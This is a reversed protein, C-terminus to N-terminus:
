EGQTKLRVDGLDKTEGTRLGGSIINSGKRDTLEYRYGPLLTGLTFRGAADTRVKGPLSYGERWGDLRGIIVDLEVGVRPQGDGDVLRGVATAGPELQVTGRGGAERPAVLAGVLGKEVHRFLIPRPRKPNFARVTFAATELPPREWGWAPTLGSCRVGALPQGDPGHVEGTVTWGPDLTADRRVTAADAPPDVRALAQYNAALVHYPAASLFQTRAGEADDREPALLYNDGARLAVVGPGPLGVVRFTGDEKTTSPVDATVLTGEFGPCDRLHPNDDLAFYEVQARVPQGTAKDTVRGEIWVGRKLALDVTVAARGVAPPVDAHVPLYPQDAPPLVLIQNGPGQPLGDLRYRGAADTTVALLERGHLPHNGLKYSRVSAGALPKGTDRDRVVGVVPMSPAAAHRFDAGYYTATVRPEGYEPNGKSEWVEIPKGARTLIRLHHSAIGPGDLQAVVLVGRGMGALRFRGGADTVASAAVATTSRPLLTHELRQAPGDGATAAELWAGFDEGLPARIQLVRVTAGAVPQGELDVIQGTVPQDEALQITLDEKPGGPPAVAWGAGLGPALATVV